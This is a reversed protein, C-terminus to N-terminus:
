KTLFTTLLMRSDPMGLATGPMVSFQCRSAMSACSGMSASSFAPMKLVREKEMCMVAPGSVTVM